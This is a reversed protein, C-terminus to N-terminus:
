PLAAMYNEMEGHASMDRAMVAFINVKATVSELGGIVKTLKETRDAGSAM